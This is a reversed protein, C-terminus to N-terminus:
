CQDLKTKSIGKRRMVGVVLLQRSNEVDYKGPLRVKQKRPQRLQTNQRSFSCTNGSSAIVTIIIITSSCVADEKEVLGASRVTKNSQKVM